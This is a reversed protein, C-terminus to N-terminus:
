IIKKLMNWLPKGLTNTTSTLIRKLLHSQAYNALLTSKRKKQIMVDVGYKWDNPVYGSTFPIHSLSAEFQSSFQNMACTKLHGFHLGSIGASTAEKMKKWGEQFASTGISASPPASVNNNTYQLQNFLEITYAPTQPPPVFTGEMIEQCSQTDGVAGLLSRLPEQMCPTESTQQFKKKNEQMCAREIGTKTTIENISGTATEVEVKTIGSKQFKHLTYKIQRAAERQKERTIIQKIITAKESGSEKAIAAAKEEM